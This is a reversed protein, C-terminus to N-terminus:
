FQAVVKVTDDVSTLDIFGIVAPNQAVISKVQADRGVEKPPNGKGTFVRQAWYARHQHISQGLVKQTFEDRVPSSEDQNVPIADSGDPFTKKKSLFIKAIAKKTLTNQNSPHVIVAVEAAASLTTLGIAVSLLGALISSSACLKM